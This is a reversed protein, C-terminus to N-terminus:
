FTENKYSAVIDRDSAAKSPHDGGGLKGLNTTTDLEENYIAKGKVLYDKVEELFTEFPIEGSKLKNTIRPPVENFIVDDTIELEPNAKQFDALLEVRRDLEANLSVEESTIRLEDDTEQAARQELENMKVRWADPDSYKLEELEEQEEKSLNVTAKSKFRNRLADAEAKTTKLEHQTKGLASQADRRRKESVAAYRLEPSYNGKPLEWTGDEKQVMKDCVQNVQEVFDKAVVENDTDGPEETDLDYKDSPILDIADDAVDAM